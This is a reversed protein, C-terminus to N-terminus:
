LVAKNYLYSDVENINLIYINGNGKNVIMSQEESDFADNYYTGNLWEKIDSSNWDNSSDDFAMKAVCDVSLLLVDSGQIDLM